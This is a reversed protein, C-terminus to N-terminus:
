HHIPLVAQLAVTALSGIVPAVITAGVILVAMLTNIGLNRTDRHATAADDVQDHLQDVRDQRLEALAQEIRDFNHTDKTEHEQLQRAQASQAILAQDVKGETRTVTVLILEDRTLQGSPLTPDDPM